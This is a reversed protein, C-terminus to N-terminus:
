KQNVKPLYTRGEKLEGYWYYVGEYFLVGGGHANIVKGDTDRWLEGPVFASGNSGSVPEAPLLLPTALVCNLACRSQVAAPNPFTLSTEYNTFQNSRHQQM